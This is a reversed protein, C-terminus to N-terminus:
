GVCRIFIDADTLTVMGGFPSECRIPTLFKMEITTSRRAAYTTNSDRDNRVVLKSAATLKTHALRDRKGAAVVTSEGPSENQAFRLSMQPAVATEFRSAPRTPVKAYMNLRGKEFFTEGNVTGATQPKASMGVVVFAVTAAAAVALIKRHTSRDAHLLSCSM